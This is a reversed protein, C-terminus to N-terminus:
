RIGCIFHPARRFFVMHAPVVVDGGPLLDSSQGEIVAVFRGVNGGLPSKEGNNLM